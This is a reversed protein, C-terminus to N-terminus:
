YQEPANFKGIRLGMSKSTVAARGAKYKAAKIADDISLNTVSGSPSSVSKPEALLDDIVDDPDTM